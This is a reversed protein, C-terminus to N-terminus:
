EILTAKWGKKYLKGTSATTILNAYQLGNEKCFEKLERSYMQFTTQDPCTIEYLRRQIQYFKEKAESSRTKNKQQSVRMKERTKESHKKGTRMARYAEVRKTDDKWTQGTRSKSIKERVEPRKSPNKDGKVKDSCYRYYEESRGRKWAAKMNNKHEETKKVGLMAQSQKKRSESSRCIGANSNAIRRVNFGRGEDIFPRFYDLWKQELQLLLDPDPECYELVVWEFNEIGYKAIANAIIQKSKTSKSWNKHARWRIMINKSSGIYSRGDEKLIIQYIGSKNSM